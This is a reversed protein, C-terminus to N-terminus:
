RLIANEYVRGKDRKGIAIVEIILYQDEVKYVLRYPPRMVKIKYCNPMGRLKNKPNHPNLCIEKLKKQFIEKLTSPLDNWEKRASNKFKLSYTM